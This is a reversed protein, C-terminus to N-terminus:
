GGILCPGGKDTEGIAPAIGSWTIGDSSHAQYILNNNGPCDCGKRFVLTLQGNQALLSPKNPSWFEYSAGSTLVTWDSCSSPKKKLIKITPIVRDSANPWWSVFALYMEGNLFTASAGVRTLARSTTPCSNELDIYQDQGYTFAPAGTSNTTKAMNWRLPTGTGYYPSTTSGVNHFFLHLYNTTPDVVAAISNEAQGAYTGAIKAPTSWNVGDSTKNYWIEHSDVGSFFLYLQNNWIALAPTGTTEGGIRKEGQWTTGNVSYSSHVYNTSSGCYVAVFKDKFYIASPGTSSSGANFSINGSWSSGDDSYAYRLNSTSKGRFFYWYNHGGIAAAQNSLDTTKEHPSSDIIKEEGCASIIIILAALIFKVGLRTKM